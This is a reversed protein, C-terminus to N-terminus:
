LPGSLRLDTSIRSMAHPSKASLRRLCPLRDEEYQSGVEQRYVLVSFLGLELMLDVEGFKSGDSSLFIRFSFLLM